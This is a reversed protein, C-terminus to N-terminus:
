RCRRGGAGVPWFVRECLSCAPRCPTSATSAPIWSGIQPPEFSLDIARDLDGGDLEPVPNLICFGLLRHPAKSFIDACYDNHKRIDDLNDNTLRRTAVDLEPAFVFAKQVACENV